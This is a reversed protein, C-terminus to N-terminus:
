TVRTNIRPAAPRAPGRRPAARAARHPLGTKDVPAGM